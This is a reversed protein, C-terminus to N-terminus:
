KIITLMPRVVGQAGKADYEKPKISTGDRNIQVFCPGPGTAAQSNICSTYVFYGASANTTFAEAIGKSIAANFATNLAAIKGVAPYGSVSEVGYCGGAAAYIQAISPIYWESANKVVPANKARWVTLVQLVPYSWDNSHSTFQSSSLLQCTKTYGTFNTKDPSVPEFFEIGKEVTKTKVDHRYLYPRGSVSHVNNILEMSSTNINNLAMVYGLITKGAADLGYNDINDGRQLGVAYVIGVCKDKNEETLEASWTGDTFFYDGVLPDRDPEPDPEVMGEAILNGSATVKENRRIVVSGAAVECALKSKTAFSFTMTGLAKGGPSSPAFIYNSFLVGSDDEEGFEKELVADMMEDAPEGASVDFSRPIEYIVRLKKLEAFKEVDKEKVTLKAFPRGLKLKESMGKDEKKLELQAFFADCLDTDFLNEAKEDIISVRHLDSTNYYIEEFHTYTVDGSTVPAAQAGKEIFDAWMLCDYDGETLKFEFPPIVGAEVAVEDRYVLVPSAEKTWVEIICRLKHTAAIHIQARTVATGEFFEPFICVRDSEEASHMVEERSCSTLLSLFVLIVVFYLNKM